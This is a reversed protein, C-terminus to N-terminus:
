RTIGGKESAQRGCSVERIRERLWAHAPDNDYREHWAMTLRFPAIEIPVPLVQLRLHDFCNPLGQPVVAILDSAAVLFPVSAFHPVLITQKRELGQQELITDILGTGQSKYFVSVHRAAAFKDITMSGHIEPHDPRAICVNNEEWLLETRIGTEFAILDPYFGIALDYFDVLSNAPPPQFLTRPRYVRLTLDKAEHSLSGILIALLTMESYDNALLHFTRNTEAPNFNSHADLAGRLSALAQRVPVILTQALPTPAMGEPTRVLLPDDFTRRLRALANSMAPQSLGVRGAARTVNREDMLAEFVLLLNLDTSQLNM